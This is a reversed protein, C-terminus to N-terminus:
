NSLAALCRAARGGAPTSLLAQRVAWCRGWTLDLAAPQAPGAASGTCRGAAGQRLELAALKSGEECIPFSPSLWSTAGWRSTSPSPVSSSMPSGGGGAGGAMGADCRRRRQGAGGGMGGGDSARCPQAGAWQTREAGMCTDRCHLVHRAPRLGAALRHRHAVGVQADGQAGDPQRQQERQLRPQVGDLQKVQEQHAGAAAAAPCTCACPLAAIGAACSHERVLAWGAVALLAQWPCGMSSEAQAPM